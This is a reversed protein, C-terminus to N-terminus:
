FMAFQMQVLSTGGSTFGSTINITSPLTSNSSGTIVSAAFRLYTSVLSGQNSTELGPVELGFEPSSATTLMLFYYGAPISVSGSAWPIEALQPGGGDYSFTQPGTHCILPLVSEVGTFPGYIGFDYESSSDSSEPMAFGFAFTTTTIETPLFFIFGGIGSAQTLAPFGNVGAFPYIQSQVTV